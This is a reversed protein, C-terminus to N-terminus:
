PLPPPSDSKSRLFAIVDARQEPKRLGAFTMKTGPAYTKPNALWENLEEYNWVKDKMGELAKSFTFGAVEAPHSGIVGYLNPGIRNAGGKDFTHCAACQKAINAGEAADAKALLPAIPAPKAEQPAGGAAAAPSAEVGAVVYAPKDLLKPKVIAEALFSSVMAIIGALLIAAAFKNLEFSSM